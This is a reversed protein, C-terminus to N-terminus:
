EESKNFSKKYLVSLLEILNEALQPKSMREFSREGSRWYVQVANDSSDFGINKDSVDNAIVVNLNKKHLKSRANEEVSETEAAFGVVFPGDEMLAVAAVIDPNRILELTMGDSEGKKIKQQATLNPRFDAVAAAAIFVDVDAVSENVAELMEKATIVQRHLKLRSPAQIQVPGSVLTTVAGADIAAQALAFGMKGSSHNSIYRVPDIAERTPGATIMVRVGALSGIEFTGSLNDILESVELMRGPGVDGCAQLGDAPGWITVGRKKLLAANAQTAPNSWMAQNMAAAVIVPAATALCIASLLDDAQGQALRAMFDASAPAILIRDAWRALEIHGMGAEADQDLLGTHVPHGSLAQLTLPTVFEIAAPTMVVRVVAGCDQLRRVLEAAKYAAIGGTIGVLIQRNYLSVSVTIVWGLVILLFASLIVSPL